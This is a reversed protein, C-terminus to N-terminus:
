RRRQAYMYGGEPDLLPTRQVDFGRDSLFQELEGPGHENLGVHYELAVRRVKALTSPSAAFLIEYEAGECDLKLLDCAEVSCRAFVDDLTLMPVQCLAHFASGLLDRTYLSNLADVGRSYLTRTGGAAGCAAHLTVISDLRCAAANACLYEFCVPSPELCIVRTAPARTAAWLAFVGVHAGIDIVTGGPAFEWSPLIYRQEVWVECFIHLLPEAPPSSIRLGSRLVIVNRGNSLRRRIPFLVISGPTAGASRLKRMVGLYAAMRDAFGRSMM